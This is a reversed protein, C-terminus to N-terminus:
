KNTPALPTTTTMKSCGQIAGEEIVPWLQYDNGFLLVTPVGGWIEQSNQGNYVTKRTIRENTEEGNAKDEIDPHNVGYKVLVELKEKPM